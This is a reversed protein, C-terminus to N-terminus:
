ADGGPGFFAERHRALLRRLDASVRFDGPGDADDDCAWYWVTYIHLAISQDLLHLVTRWRPDSALDSRLDEFSQIVTEMLTFREDDSLSGDSYAALFEDIRAPDAVEWEWDQMGPSNPLGFRVALSRIADATPCRWLHKPIDM